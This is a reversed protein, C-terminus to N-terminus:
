RALGSTVTPPLAPQALAAHPSAAAAAASSNGPRLRKWLPVKGGANEASRAKTSDSRALEAAFTYSYLHNLNLNAFAGDNSGLRWWLLLRSDGSDTRGM